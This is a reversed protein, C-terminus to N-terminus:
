KLPDRLSDSTQSPTTSYAHLPGGLEEAFGYGRVMLVDIDSERLVRGDAVLQRAMQANLDERGLWPGEGICLVPIQGQKRALQIAGALLAPSTIGPLYRIELVRGNPSAHFEMEREVEEPPAPSLERPLFPIKATEREAFFLYVMARAKPEILAQRFLVEEAALGAQLDPSTCAAQVAAWARSPLCPLQDTRRGAQITLAREILNEGCVEDVIGLQLAEAASIAEGSEILRLAASPGALRPLRQTGGAGPILGLKVEPLGVRASEHLIRYHGAMALELGIGLASGNIAMIVTRGGREISNLLENLYSMDPAIEGRTIQEIERIDAGAVFFKGSGTLVIREATTSSLAEALAAALPRSLANVPPNMM